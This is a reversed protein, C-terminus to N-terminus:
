NGQKGEETLLGMFKFAELVALEKNSKLKPIIKGAGVELKEAGCKNRVACVSSKSIDIGYERKVWKRIGGISLQYCNKWSESVVDYPNRFACILYIRTKFVKISLHEDFCLRTSYVPTSGTDLFRDGTRRSDYDM